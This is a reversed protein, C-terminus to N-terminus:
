EEAGPPHVKAKDVYWGDSRIVYRKSGCRVKMGPKTLASTLLSSVDRSQEATATICIADGASDNLHIVTTSDSHEVLEYSGEYSGCSSDVLLFVDARVVISGGTIVYAEAPPGDNESAVTDLHWACGALLAAVSEPAGGSIEAVLVDTTNTQRTAPETEDGGWCTWLSVGGCIAAQAMMGMLLLMFPWNPPCQVGRSM